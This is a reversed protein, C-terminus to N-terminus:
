PVAGVHSPGVLDKGWQVSSHDDWPLESELQTKYTTLLIQTLCPFPILPFGDGMSVMEVQHRWYTEM